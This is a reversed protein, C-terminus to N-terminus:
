GVMKERPVMTCAGDMGLAHTVRGLGMWCAICYSLDVIEEDSFANKAREWFADDGPLGHPDLGLREAYEIAIRERASFLSSARWQSVAEYFGEDPEPGHAAVSSANDGGFSAFYSPLDRGSRFSRCILCGNIEATRARAAEFERLSLRSHQYGAKSFAVGARVIEKAYNESLHAVPNDCHEDPIHIRM